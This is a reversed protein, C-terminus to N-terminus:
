GAGIALISVDDKLHEDGRWAVVKKILSEVAEQLPLEGSEGV